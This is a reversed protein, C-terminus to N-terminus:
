DTTKVRYPRLFKIFNDAIKGEVTGGISNVMGSGLVHRTRVEVISYVFKTTFIKRSVEIVVDAERPDRTVSIGWAVFEKHKFLAAELTTPTFYQSKSLICLSKFTTLAVRDENQLPPLEPYDKLPAPPEPQKKATPPREPQRKIPPSSGGGCLGVLSFVVGCSIVLFWRSFIM